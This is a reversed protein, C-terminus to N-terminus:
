SFDLRRNGVSFLDIVADTSPVIEKHVYILSLSNLRDYSM